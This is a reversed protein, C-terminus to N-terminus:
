RARLACASAIIPNLNGQVNRIRLNRECEWADVPQKSWAAFLQRRQKSLLHLEPYAADMYLHARAVPGKANIPPEFVGGGLRATLSQLIFPKPMTVVGMPLNSRLANIEGIEPFLNHLDAEVKRYLTNMKAACHRGHFARNRSDVCEPHGERWEVFSNGFAEAPVVHEWEIRRGRGEPRQPLYRCRAYDVTKDDRYACASYLTLRHDDYIDILRRKAQSFSVIRENRAQVSGATLTVLVAVFRTVAAAPQLSHAQSRPRFTQPRAKARSPPSATRWWACRMLAFMLHTIQTM